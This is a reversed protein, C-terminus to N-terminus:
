SCLFGAESGRKPMSFVQIANPFGCERLSEIIDCKVVLGGFFLNRIVDYMLLKM